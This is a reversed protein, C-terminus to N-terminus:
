FYKTFKYVTHPIKQKNKKVKSNSDLPVVRITYGIPYLLRILTNVQPSRTGKEIRAIAPQKIGSINSLERQSLNSNKRAIIAAEIIDEELQIEAREQPTLNLSEKVDEWNLEKDMIKMDGKKYDELLRKAKDIERRPTKQTQKMFISLVIFKNNDFCAFLIRDRIPRLEWIEDDLHKIFPQGLSLGKKSLQNIYAIIKNFKIKADKNNQIKLNQIYDYVESKRYKDTYFIIQYM